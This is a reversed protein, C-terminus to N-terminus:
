GIGGVEDCHKQGSVNCTESGDFRCRYVSGGGTCEINEIWYSGSAQTPTIPTISLTMMGIIGLGLIVKKM